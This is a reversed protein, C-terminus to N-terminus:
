ATGKLAEGVTEPTYGKERIATLLAPLAEVAAATPQLMLISGDFVQELARELIDAANGRGSLLDCSAAVHLLGLRNAVRASISRDRLGAFYYRVPEGAIQEIVNASASVDRTVMAVNGDLLPTYGCTGVEHGEAIMRRVTSAHAKAWRGSIFFTMQVDHDRLVDLMDTIGKADWTVACELAVMGNQAGRYVTGSSLAAIANDGIKTGTVVYILTIVLLILVNVANMLQDVGKQIDM